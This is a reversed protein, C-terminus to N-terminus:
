DLDASATLLLYIGEDDNYETDINDTSFQHYASGTVKVGDVSLMVEIDGHNERDNQLKTILESIRM